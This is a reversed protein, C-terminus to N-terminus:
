SFGKEFDLLIRQPREADFHSPQLDLHQASREVRDSIRGIRGPLDDEFAARDADGAFPKRTRDPKTGVLFECLTYKLAFEGNLLDICPIVALPELLTQYEVIHRQRVDHDVKFAFVM